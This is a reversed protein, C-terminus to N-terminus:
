GVSLSSLEDGFDRSASSLCRKVWAVYHPAKKADVIRKLEIYKEFENIIIERGM